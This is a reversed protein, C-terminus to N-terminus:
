TSSVRLTHILEKMKNWNDEGRQLYGYKQQSGNRNKGWNKM